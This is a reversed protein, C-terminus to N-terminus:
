TTSRRRRRGHSSTSRAGSGQGCRRNQCRSVFVILCLDLVLLLLLLLLVRLLLKWGCPLLATSEGDTFADIRQCLLTTELLCEWATCVGVLLPYMMGVMRNWVYQTGQRCCRDADPSPTTLHSPCVTALSVTTTVTDGSVYVCAPENDDAATMVAGCDMASSELGLVVGDCNDADGPVSTTAAETCSEIPLKSAAWYLYVAYYIWALLWSVRFLRMYSTGLKALQDRVSNAAVTSRDSDAATM